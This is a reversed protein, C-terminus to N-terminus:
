IHEYQLLEQDEEMNFCSKSYRQRWSLVKEFQVNLM